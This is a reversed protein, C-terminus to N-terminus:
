LTTRPREREYEEILDYPEGWKEAEKLLVENHEGKLDKLLQAKAAEFTRFRGHYAFGSLSRGHDIKDKVLCRKRLHYPLLIAYFVTGEEDNEVFPKKEKSIDIM